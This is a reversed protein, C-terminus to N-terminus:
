PNTDKAYLFLSIATIALVVMEGVVLYRDNNYLWCLTISIVVISIARFDM